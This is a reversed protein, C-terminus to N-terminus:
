FISCYNLKIKDTPSSVRKTVEKIAEQLTKEYIVEIYCGGKTKDTIEIEFEFRM